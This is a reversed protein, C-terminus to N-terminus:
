HFHFIECDTQVLENAGQADRLGNEGCRSRRVACEGHCCTAAEDRRRRIARVAAAFLRSPKPHRAGFPIGTAISDDQDLRTVDDSIKLCVAVPRERVKRSAELEVRHWLRNRAHYPAFWPRAIGLVVGSSQERRSRM